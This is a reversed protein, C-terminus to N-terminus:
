LKPDAVNVELRAMGARKKRRGSYHVGIVHLLGVVVIAIFLTPFIPAM